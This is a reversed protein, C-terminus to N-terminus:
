SRRKLSLRRPQEELQRRPSLGDDVGHLAGEWLGYQLSPLGIWRIGWYERLARSRQRHAALPRLVILGLM